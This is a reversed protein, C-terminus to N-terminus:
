ADYDYTQLTLPLGEWQERISSGFDDLMECGSLAVSIVVVIAMAIWKRKTMQM